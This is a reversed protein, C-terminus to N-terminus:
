RSRSPLAPTQARRSPVHASDGAVSLSVLAGPPGKLSVLTYSTDEKSIFLVAERQGDPFGTGVLDYIGPWAFATTVQAPTASVTATRSTLAIATIAGAVASAKLISRLQFSM